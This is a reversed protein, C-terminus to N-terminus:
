TYQLVQRVKTHLADLTGDNNIGADFWKNPLENESTHDNLPGVGPRNVKILLANRHDLAHHENEFRVDPFVYHVSESLGRFLTDIWVNESIMDRGVETGLVQLLRRIEPQSRKAEDWGLEDVIEQVRWEHDTTDALVVPNLAYLADRLKDAFGVITYGYDLALVTAVANKGAGAFGHLGILRPLNTGVIDTGFSKRLNRDQVTASSM